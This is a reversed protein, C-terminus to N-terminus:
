VFEKPLDYVSLKDKPTIIVKSIIKKMNFLVIMTEGWGFANNVRCYDIGNDVLFRRLINYKSAPIWNENLIINHFVQADCKGNETYKDMRIWFDKKNKRSLNYNVFDEIKSKDIVSHSLDNGKSIIIQYLKRSGKSYKVATDYHTTCYLGVGFEVRGKKHTIYESNNELNGGHYLTLTNSETSPSIIVEQLLCFERFTLM